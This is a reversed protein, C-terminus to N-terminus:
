ARIHHDQPPSPERDRERPCCNIERGSNSLCAPSGGRKKSAAAFGPGSESINYCAETTGVPSGVLPRSTRLIRGSSLPPARHNLRPHDRRRALPPGFTDRLLKWTSSNERNFSCVDDAGPFL